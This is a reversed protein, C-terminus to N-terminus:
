KELKVRYINTGIQLRLEPDTIQGTSNGAPGILWIQGDSPKAPNRQIAGLILGQPFLARMNTDAEMVSFPIDNSVGIVHPIGPLNVSGGGVRHFALGGILKHAVVAAVGVGADQVTAVTGNHFDGLRWSSHDTVNFSATNSWSISFKEDPTGLISGVQLRSFEGAGTSTKLFRALERMSNSGKFEAFLDSRIKPTMATIEGKVYNTLDFRALENRLYSISQANVVDKVAAYVGLGVLAVASVVLVYFSPLKVLQNMVAHAIISRTTEDIKAADLLIKLSQPPETVQANSPRAQTLHISTIAAIVTLMTALFVFKQSQASIFLFCLAFVVIANLCKWKAATARIVFTFCLFEVAITTGLATALSFGSRSLVVLSMLLIVIAPGWWNKIWQWPERFKQKIWERQKLWKM